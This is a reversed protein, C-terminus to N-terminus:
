IIRSYYKKVDITFPATKVTKKQNQDFYELHANIIGKGRFSAPISMQMSCMVTDKVPFDLWVAKVWNADQSFLAKENVAKKLLWESPIEAVLRVPGTIGNRLIVANVSTSLGYRAQSPGNLKLIPQAQVGGALLLLLGIKNIVSPM